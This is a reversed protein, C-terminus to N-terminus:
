RKRSWLWGGEKRRAPSAREAQEWAPPSLRPPGTGEQGEIDCWCHSSGDSAAKPAEPVLREGELGCPVGEESAQPSRPEPFGMHGKMNDWPEPRPAPPGGRRPQEECSTNPTRRKTHLAGQRRRHEPRAGAPM